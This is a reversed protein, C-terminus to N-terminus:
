ESDSIIYEFTKVTQLKGKGNYTYQIKKRGFENYEFKKVTLLRNYADYEYEKVCKGSPGYEFRKRWKQSSSGYEIEEIKQGESNYTTVHDLTKSNMKSDANWEKIVLNKKNIKPTESQAHVAPAFCLLALVPIISFFKNATM